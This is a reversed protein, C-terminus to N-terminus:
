KSLKVVIKNEKDNNMNLDKLVRKIIPKKDNLENYHKLQLQKLLLDRIESFKCINGHVTVYGNVVDRVINMVEDETFKYEIKLVIEIEPLDDPVDVVNVLKNLEEKTFEVGDETLDIIKDVISILTRGAINYMEKGDEKYCSAYHKLTNEVLVPHYTDRKYVCFHRDTNSVGTGNYEKLRRQINDTKGVKYIKKKMYAKSTVIYIIEKKANMTKYFRTNYMDKIKEQLEKKEIELQKYKDELEVSGTTILENVWKSVQVAFVPSCWQAIQIALLPHAYTGQSIKDNGGKKIDLLESVPIGTDSTIANLVDNSGNLSNWHNFMKGSAKCIQTVNVYGDDRVMISVTEGTKTKLARNM